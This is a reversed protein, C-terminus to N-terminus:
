RRSSSGAQRAAPGPAPEDHDIRAADLAGQWWEPTRYPGIGDLWARGAGAQQRRYRWITAVAQGVQRWILGRRPVMRHHFSRMGNTLVYTRGATNRPHADADLLVTWGGRSLPGLGSRLLSVAYQLVLGRMGPSRAAAPAAPVAAWHRDDLREPPHLRNLAMIEDHLAEADRAFLDVPGRLFDAVARMRLAATGYDHTLIAGTILGGVHALSLQEVREPYTAAFILRNRLDYYSQWGQAKAYFPEHWVAIGPLTVTPVGAAALRQGYEFDDGRIFVPAPLGVERCRALPLICFWWANYDTGTPANFHWQSRHDAMDVNHCYREITNNARLFAGAEYMVTPRLADLMGAGLVIDAAAYDLFRLARPIMRADLKIDDDMMLHHSAPEDAILADRLSRTFGGCGGLNRQRLAHVRPHALARRMAPTAFDAGQNVVQIAKIRPEKDALAGLAVLTRALRAEQNFTCLGISLTAKRLPPQPTVVDLAFLQSNRQADLEVFLRKKPKEGFVSEDAHPPVEVLFRRQTPADLLVESLVQVGEEGDEIVRLMASGRFDVVLAFQRVPTWAIWYAAHFANFFTDTSLTQGRELAIPAGTGDDRPVAVAHDAISSSIRLYLKAPMGPPPMLLSQLVHMM